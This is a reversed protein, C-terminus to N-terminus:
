GRVPQGAPERERGGPAALLVARHGAGLRLGRTLLFCAPSCRWRATRLLLLAFACVVRCRVNAKGFSARNTCAYTGAAGTQVNYGSM